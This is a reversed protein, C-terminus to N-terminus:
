EEGGQLRRMLQDKLNPPIGKLTLTDADLDIIVREGLHKQEFGISVGGGAGSFKKLQRLTARDPPIEKELEYGQGNTFQAFGLDGGDSIERSLEKLEIDQGDELQGQCYDFVKERTAEKESKDMQSASCFDEVATMLSKNQEKVNIGEKCGMFDLFFDAVKRGARGRIFSIYRHNDPEAQWMTLDIRAALQISQLELYETASVEMDADVTISEKPRLMAVFLFNNAVHSYNALMLYGEEGFEYKGLEASLLQSAQQTFNVFDDGEDLYATLERAFQPQGQEDDAFYGYGKGQKSNYIRHLESVLHEVDQSPNLVQDRPQCVIDGNQNTSIAHLIIHRIVVSM